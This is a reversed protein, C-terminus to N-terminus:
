IVGLPQTVKPNKSAVKRIGSKKSAIKKSHSLMSKYSIFPIYTAKNDKEIWDILLSVGYIM